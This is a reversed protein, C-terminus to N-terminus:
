YEKLMQEKHRKLPDQQILNALTLYLEPNHNYFSQPQEFFQEVCVAFFEERNTGAYPRLFTNQKNRIRKMEVKTLSQWHALVENDLFSCESNPIFDELKLAHAMEHLGLNYGDENFTYGKLFDEWSFVIIGASNVEGKHLKKTHKSYYEKPFLIIKRFSKLQLPQFGFTIQVACAGVLVKMENTVELRGRGQFNKSALFYKLRFCFEKKEKWSLTMYYPFKTELLHVLPASLPSRFQYLNYIPKVFAQSFFLWILYVVGTLMAMLLM